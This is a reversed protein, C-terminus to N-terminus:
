DAVNRLALTTAELVLRGLTRLNELLDGIVVEKFGRDLGSSPLRKLGM